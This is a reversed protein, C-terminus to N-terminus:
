QAPVAFGGLLTDLRAQYTKSAEIKSNFLGLNTLKGTIRIDARWKKSKKCWSVGAYGSTNNKQNQANGRTDTIHLNQKRNDLTDHNRHDVKINPDILNLIFRHLYQNPRTRHAYNSKSTPNWTSTWNFSRVREFDEFDIKTYLGRFKTKSLPSYVTGDPYFIPQPEM